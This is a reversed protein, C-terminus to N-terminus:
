PRFIYVVVLATSVLLAVAAVVSTCGSKGASQTFKEPHRQRLDKEIEEVAQKADALGARAERVPSKDAGIAAIAYLKIAEIKRGAFIEAEIAQRQQETLQNM